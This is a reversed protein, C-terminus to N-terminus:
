YHALVGRDFGDSRALHSFNLVPQVAEAITASAFAVEYAGGLHHVVHALSSSCMTTRVLWSGSPTRRTRRTMMAM